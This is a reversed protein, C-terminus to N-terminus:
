RVALRILLANPRNIVKGRFDIPFQLAKRLYSAGGTGSALNAILEKLRVWEKDSKIYVREGGPHEAILKLVTEVPLKFAPYDIGNVTVSNNVNTCYVGLTGSLRPKGQRDKVNFFETKGSCTKDWYKVFRERESKATESVRDFFEKSHVGAYSPALTGVTNILWQTNASILVGGNVHWARINNGVSAANAVIHKATEIDEDSDGILSWNGGWYLASQCQIVALAPIEGVKSLNAEVEALLAKDPVENAM